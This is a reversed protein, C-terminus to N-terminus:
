PIAPDDSWRWPVTYAGLRRAVEAADCSPARAAVIAVLGLRRDEEVAVVEAGTGALAADYIRTIALRRLEPKLIKGVATKPLEPLIEVYKPVAAPEGIHSRAHALLAGAEVEAGRCLEVYVAPLEGSHADPQGIAGAFAVAPHSM